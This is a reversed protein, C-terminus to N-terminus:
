RLVLNNNNIDLAVYIYLPVSPTGMCDHVSTKLVSAEM